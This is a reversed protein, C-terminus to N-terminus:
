GILAELQHPNASGIITGGVTGNPEIIVYAPVGTFGFRASIKGDADDLVAWEAATDEFLRSADSRDDTMVVAVLVADPNREAFAALEPLDDICPRCWSATFAVLVPHGRQSRLDFEGGLLSRGALHPAPDGAAAGSSDGLAEGSGAVITRDLDDSGTLAHPFLGSIGLVLVAIAAIGLGAARRRGRLTRARAEVRARFDSPYTHPKSDDLHSLM